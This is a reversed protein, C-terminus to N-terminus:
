VEAAQVLSCKGVDENLLSIHSLRYGLVAGAGGVLGGSLGQVVSENVGTALCQQPVELGNM